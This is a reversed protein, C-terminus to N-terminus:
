RHLLALARGVFPDRAGALWGTREPSLEQMTRCLTQIFLAEAVCQRPAM